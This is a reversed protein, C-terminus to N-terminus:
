RPAIVMRSAAYLRQFWRPQRGARLKALRKAYLSAGNTQAYVQEMLALAAAIDGSKELTLSYNNLLGPHAPEIALARRHLTLAESFRGAAGLEMGLRSLCGINRPALDLARQMMAVRRRRRSAREGLTLFYQPSRERREWAEAIFPAPDFAGRCVALVASQLMGVEQLYGSVTHGAHALPVPTFAFQRKLLSVHRRDLDIPDYVVYAERLNPFSLSREWVPRFRRGSERWRHEFGAVSPDISYQPSLALAVDAGVLGALRIAAYAGMSSGYTVVRDYGRTAAHVAAMAQTMEPYQYWDNERSLVHIADIGRSQLFHEGFGARDLTRNDTFSDFAVVCCSNSFGGVMRIALDDSRFLVGVPLTVDSQAQLM